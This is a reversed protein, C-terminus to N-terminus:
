RTPYIAEAAGIIFQVTRHGITSAAGMCCIDVAPPRLTVTASTATTAMATSSSPEADDDDWIQLAVCGVVKVRERYGPFGSYRRVAADLTKCGPVFKQFRGDLMAEFTPYPTIRMLRLLESDDANDKNIFLVHDGARLRDVNKSWIRGEYSKRKTRLDNLYKGLIKQRLAPEIEPPPLPAPSFSTSSVVGAASSAV